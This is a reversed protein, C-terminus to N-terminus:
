FIAPLHLWGVLDRWLCSAISVPLLIARFTIFGEFYQWCRGRWLFIRGLTKWPFVTRYKNEVSQCISRDSRFHRFNRCRFIGAFWSAESWKCQLCTGLSKREYQVSISGIPPNDVLFYHVRVQMEVFLEWICSYSAPPIFLHKNHDRPSPVVNSFFTLSLLWRRFDSSLPAELTHWRRLISLKCHFGM